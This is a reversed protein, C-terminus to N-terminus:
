SARRRQRWRRGECLQWSALAPAGLVLDRARKLLSLSLAIEPSLGLAVGLAVYAGEQVGISGPVMFAVGRAAYILSELTLVAAMDIRVDMLRLALFIEFSTCLWAAFHLLFAVGVNRHSLYIARIEQSVAAASISLGRIRQHLIRTTIRNSIDVNGRQLAIFAIAALAAVGLGGALPPVLRSHPFLRLLLILGMATFAIQASFELTVDVVTSAAVTVIRVEPALSVARIGFLYGGIKTFPLLESAGDRVLRGWIYSRPEGVRILSWWAVGMLLTVFLHVISIALLARWGNGSLTAVVVPVGISAFLWVILALGALLLAADLIKARLPADAASWAIARCACQEDDFSQPSSM